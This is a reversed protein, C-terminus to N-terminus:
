FWRAGCPIVLIVSLQTQWYCQICWLTWCLSCQLLSTIIRIVSTIGQHLVPHVVPCWGRQWFDLPTRALRYQALDITQYWPVIHVNRQWACTWDTNYSNSTKDNRHITYQQRTGWNEVHIGQIMPAKGNYERYRLARVSYWKYKLHKKMKNRTNYNGKCQIRQIM